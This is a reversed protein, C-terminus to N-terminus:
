DPCNGGLASLDLFLSKLVNYISLTVLNNIEPKEM